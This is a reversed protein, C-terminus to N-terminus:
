DYIYQTLLLRSKDSIVYQYTVNVHIDNDNKLNIPEGKQNKPEKRM